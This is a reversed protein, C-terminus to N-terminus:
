IYCVRVCEAYGFFFFAAAAAAAFFYVHFSFLIFDFSDRLVNHIWFTSRNIDSLCRYFKLLSFFSLFDTPHFFFSKKQHVCSANKSCNKQKKNDDDDDDDVDDNLIYFTAIVFASM